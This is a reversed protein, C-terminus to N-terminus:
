KWGPFPYVPKGSAFKIPFVTVYKGKQIQEVLMQHKNQNQYGDYDEFKVDGFIGSWSGSKLGARVKERDGGAKAAVEAMIRLSEYATPAHYSPDKGFAKVYRENWAKAGPWTVDPTWQTSSFVSESIAKEKAFEETAFGAGGGLFAKPTLGLERAQRMLLIADAVYSVMFILDPNQQKIKSLTSRYDPAGKAYAEDGVIKLGRKAAQERATKAASTGFDTNEYVIAMTKPKDLTFVAEILIGSYESTTSNLRFVWKYNQRTIEEKSAVPILLPVKYKEALKAVANASASTYPGVVGAVNDRTALKEMASMAVQPKSTDDESVTVIEVGQKKLDEIALKFGNALNEGIPAESGTVSNLLGIKVPAARAQGGVFLSLMMLHTMKM